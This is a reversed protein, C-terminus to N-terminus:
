LWLRPRSAEGRCSVGTGDIAAKCVACVPPKKRFVKERFSHPEAKRPQRTSPCVSLPTLEWPDMELVPGPRLVVSKRDEKEIAGLSTLHM